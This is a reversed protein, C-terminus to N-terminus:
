FRFTASVGYTRPDGEAKRVASSGPFIGNNLGLPGALPQYTVNYAYKVGGLNRGFVAISWRDDAGNLALRAGLLARGDEIGQTNGDTTGTIFQDSILSINGNFAWNMGGSGIDGNLDVGFSGMFKPSYTAPKGKLDQTQGRNVLPLCVAPIVGAANPACGPLGSATPFSTFASDLYALSANFKLWSAPAIITDLEFGQQRLNGANRVVFSVGDFSRDQYGGIDMRYFTLNTTLARDLWRAKIGAEYNKVTEQGFLRKTSILVGGPGFTSQSPVGGGSNYGGSKYGTSLNAFLMLEDTPKYNLSVRYTFKSEKISPFTLVEAARLTAMFPNTTQSYTGSKKDQTWRGGLTLSLTDALHVTAQGYAAISKVTQTVNQVTGGVGQATAYYANCAANSAPPAPVLIACFQSNMNLQEGITYDEKFYYVGGVMDLAGNLWQREPSIIQLEHNHSNSAFKNVRSAIQAPTFIVDGDLQNNRWERYSNILKLATGGGLEYTLTSSIGLNKDDLSATLYQNATRDGLVTDPLLGRNTLATLAAASISSTDLDFNASGDGKMRSYDARVIWELAGTELKATGRFAYDDSGGFTRGDLRNNWYGNFWQGMGAVRFSLNEGAPLNLHGSVKKRGATGYEGAVEGSFESEPLASRLSLAGVSANRGFLTGQPGRLVEVGAIDLFNGLVAGARPVYIGDQFIAVSPEITTNGQAGVGRINVRVAAVSSSRVSQFNSAVSGLEQVNVVNADALTDGSFAAISIPVTQVSESRKQATVVIEDSAIEESTDEAEQAFAPASALLAVTLACASVGHSAKFSIM